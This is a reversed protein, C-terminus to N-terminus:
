REGHPVHQELRCVNWGDKREFGLLSVWARVIELGRGSEDTPTTLPSETVGDFAPGQDSVLIQVRNPELNYTIGIPHGSENQYAHLICNNVVEIVACRLRFASMDDLCSTGLISELNNLLVEVDGADSSLNLSGTQSMRKPMREM